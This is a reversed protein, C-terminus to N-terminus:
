PATPDKKPAKEATTATGPKTRDGETENTGPATPAAPPLTEGRVASQFSTIWEACNEHAVYKEIHKLMRLASAKQDGVSFLDMEMEWQLQPRRVALFKDLEAPRGERGGSGRSPRGWLNHVSGEHLIRKEWAQRLETLTRPSRLPPLILQEYVMSIQLPATPWDALKIGNLGYATAYVSDLVDQRLRGQEGLLDDADKFILDIRELAKPWLKDRKEPESAAELTLLLWNLQHRLARRFAPSDTRDKHRRKWERFDSAKRNEGEFQVKEICDVYLDHAAADTQIAARFARHAAEYRDSIRENSGDRLQKLKELLLQADLPTLKEPAAGLPLPLALAALCLIITPKVTTLVNCSASGKRILAGSCFPDVV